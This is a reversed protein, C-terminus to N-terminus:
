QLSLLYAAIDRSEAESAGMNPMGSKPLVGQPWRIWLILNEATNPMVGAIYTRSGMHALPPGILGRAGAVGPVDHCSLCGLRRMAEAARRPDGGTMASAKQLNRHRELMDQAAEAGILAGLALVGAVAAIWLRRTM